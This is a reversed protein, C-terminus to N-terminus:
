RQPEPADDHRRRASDPNPRPRRTLHGLDVVDDLVNDLDRNSGNWGIDIDV